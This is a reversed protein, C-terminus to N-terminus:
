QSRVVLSPSPPPPALLLPTPAPTLAHCTRRSSCALCAGEHQQMRRDTAAGAATRVPLLRKLLPEDIFCSLDHWRACASLDYPALGADFDFRRVGAAYREVQPPALYPRLQTSRACRPRRQRQARLACHEEAWAPPLTRGWRMLRGCGCASSRAGTGRVEDEDPLQALGELAPDWRRVVVGRPPLLLFTSVAPAVRGEAGTAQYSLFHVGPPIMKVGQFRPGVVFVQQDLGLLTGPPVGLLLLAAGGAALQRAQDPDLAVTYPAAGAAM